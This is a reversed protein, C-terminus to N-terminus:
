GGDKRIPVRPEPDDRVVGEVWDSLDKGGAYSWGHPTRVFLHAMRNGWHTIGSDDDPARVREEVVVAVTTGVRLTNGSDRVVGRGPLGRLEGVDRVVIVGKTGVHPLRASDRVAGHHRTRAQFALNVASDFPTEAPVIIVGPRRVRGWHLDHIHAAVTRALSLSDASIQAHAARPICALLAAFVLAAGRLSKM